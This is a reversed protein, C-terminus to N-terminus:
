FIRTTLHGNRRRAGRRKRILDSLLGDSASNVIESVANAITMLTVKGVSEQPPIMYLTHFVPLLDDALGLEFANQSVATAMSSLSSTDVNEHLTEELDQKAIVEFVDMQKCFSNLQDLTADAEETNGTADATSVAIEELEAGVRVMVEDIRLQMFYSRVMVREELDCTSNILSNIFIMISLRLSSSKTRYLREIITQFRVQEFRERRFDDFAEM